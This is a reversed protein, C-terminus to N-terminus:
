VETYIQQLAPFVYEKYKIPTVVSYGSFADIVCLAYVSGDYV